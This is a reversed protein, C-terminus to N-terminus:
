KMKEIAVDAAKLIAENSLPAGVAQKMWENPTLQGLAYIRLVEPAFEHTKFHEELQFHILHGFAYNPLYMPSNVMHSYIGLITQDKQGFVPAYYANWVDKSIQLVTQKLEEATSAPNAYLWQWMKMDVMSVGMIEYLSWFIDLTKLYEKEPNPDKMNLLFLDREQFVFALAETFATNPVGNIMYNPVDNLSITQEVNHGFEHIAINYGKYNMGSAPIRTRLHAKESKMQAGWAHGSGRAPDVSVRSAIFAAKEKTFGLKLLINELDAELAAANPYKKETISNLMEENFSSRAKFGDYWIDWPSLERGLRKKIIEAVEQIQSSSLFENFLKQVEPQPIQMGSSFARQIATNMDPNFPDVAQYVHFTNLIQQYREDTEDPSEIVSGSVFVENTIPNWDQRGSNIVAKPITQDVIRQMVQYILAQKEFGVEKNAYNAKIEDRLNWHSLLVMNEPFLKENDKNLLNGMYINYDAIYADSEAAVKSEQQVLESPVRSSFVDGLRAYGWELPTWDQGSTNKEETSYYPFNLAVIFAIKNEYLDNMLHAGPNYGAFLPDISLVDGKLLTVNEQMDLSLKNFHGYLSELYESFGRFSAEKQIPDAMCNESCFKVFDEPSGDADRWLSAAHQIGKEITAANGGPNQDHISKIAGAITADSIGSPTPASQKQFTSHCASIMVVCALILIFNRTM